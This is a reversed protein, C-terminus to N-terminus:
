SWVRSNKGPVFFLGDGVGKIIRWHLCQCGWATRLYIHQKEASPYFFKAKPVKKNWPLSRVAERQQIKCEKKGEVATVGAAAWTVLRRGTWNLGRCNWCGGGLQKWRQFFILGAFTKPNLNLIKWHAGCTLALSADDMILALAFCYQSQGYYEVPFRLGPKILKSSCQYAVASAFAPPFYTM